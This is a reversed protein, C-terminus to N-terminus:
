LKPLGVEAQDFKKQQEDLLKLDAEVSAARRKLDLFSVVLRDVKGDDRHQTFMAVVVVNSGGEATELYHKANRPSYVLGNAAAGTDHFPEHCLQSARAMGTDLHELECKRNGGFFWSVSHQSANRKYSSNPEGYKEILGAMLDESRPRQDRRFDLSRSVAYVENGASPSSLFVNVDEKERQWSYYLTRFNESTVDRTGFYGELYRIEKGDVHKELLQLSEASAMGPKFGVIDIGGELPAYSPVEVTQPITFRESGLAGSVAALIISSSLILSKVPM